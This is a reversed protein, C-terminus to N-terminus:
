FKFKIEGDLAMEFDRGEIIFNFNGPTLLLRPSVFDLSFKSFGDRGKTGFQEKPFSKLLEDNNRAELHHQFLIRQAKADFLTKVYYLRDSTQNKNLQKLEEKREEFFLVKQGVEFIHFLFAKKKKISVPEKMRFLDRKGFEGKFQSVFIGAEFKNVPVIQRGFENEYLGFLYNEGSDAYVFNKYDKKSKYVQEKVVTANEPNMFGRAAKV